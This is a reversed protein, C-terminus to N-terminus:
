EGWYGVPYIEITGEYQENEQIPIFSANVDFQDTQYVTYEYEGNSPGQAIPETKCLQQVAKMMKEGVGGDMDFAFVFAMGQMRADSEIGEEGEYYIRLYQDMVPLNPFIDWENVVYYARDFEDQIPEGMKNIVDQQSMGWTLGTLQYLQEINTMPQQEIGESYSPSHQAQVAESVPLKPSQCATLGLLTLTALCMGINKRM